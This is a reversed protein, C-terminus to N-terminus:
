SNGGQATVLRTGKDVIELAFAFGCRMGCFVGDGYDGRVAGAAKANELERWRFARLGSGCWACCGPATPDGQSAFPRAGARAASFRLAPNKM